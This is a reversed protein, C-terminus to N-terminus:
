ALIDLGVRTALPHASAIAAQRPLVDTAEAQAVAPALLCLSLGLGLWRRHSHERGIDPM